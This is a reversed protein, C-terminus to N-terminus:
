TRRRAKEPLGPVSNEFMWGYYDDMTIPEGPRYPERLIQPHRARRRISRGASPFGSSRSRGSKAPIPSTRRRRRRAASEARSALVPQRFGLWQGAHTEQSMTDHRETGLGMPLIYDAFWATESWTPSLSVHLGIKDQDQLVEM